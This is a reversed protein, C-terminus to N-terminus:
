ESRPTEFVVELASRMGALWGLGSYLLSRSRDRRGRRRRERGQGALDRGRKTGVIQPLVQQIATVMDDRAAPYFRALYGVVFFAIAMIPFFSLFAFYTM